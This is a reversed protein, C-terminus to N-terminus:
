EVDLPVGCGFQTEIWEQVIYWTAPQIYDMLSIQIQNLNVVHLEASTQIWKSLTGMYKHSFGFTLSGFIVGTETSNIKIICRSYITERPGVCMTGPKDVIKLSNTASLEINFDNLTYDTKNICTIEM